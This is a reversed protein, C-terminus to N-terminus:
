RPATGEAPPGSPESSIQQLLGLADRHGPFRQVLEALVQRAEETEGNRYLYFALTYAYKPEDPRLESARRCFGAAENWRDDATIVCLNYAAPAMRPDTELARGLSAEAEQLDGREAQLLGLNFNAAADAPAIELAQRLTQEAKATEGLQAYAMSLNVSAMVARPELRLASKYADVAQPLDQRQLHYNGLNYHSSWQDPRATLSALYEENARNWSERHPGQSEM